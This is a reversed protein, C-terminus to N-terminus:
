QGVPEDGDFVEVGDDGPPLKAMVAKVLEQHEVEEARLEEFLTRVDADRVYALAADFYDHAKVESALAVDMAQRISMFMRSQDYDPAEIDWLMGRSVRTPADGFIAQRRMLLDAGHKAENGAMTVFFRAAEPTHHLKLNEAFEEYREKAEEEVLIALDLADQLSLTSFDITPM